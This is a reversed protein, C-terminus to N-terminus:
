HTNAASHVSRSARGSAAFPTPHATQSADRASALLAEALSVIHRCRELVSLGHQTPLMGRHHREFIQCGLMGEFAALRHSAGSVSMHARAAAASLSGLDACLTALKMTILDVRALNVAPVVSRPPHEIAPTEM